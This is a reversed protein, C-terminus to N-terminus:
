GGEVLHPVLGRPPHRVDAGGRAARGVGAGARSAGAALSSAAAPARHLRTPRVRGGARRAPRPEMPQDGAAERLDCGGAGALCSPHARRAPLEALVRQGRRDEAGPRPPVEGPLPRVARGRHLVPRRPLVPRPHRGFRASRRRRRADARDRSDGSPAEARRLRGRRDARVAARRSADRDVYFRCVHTSNVAPSRVAVSQREARGPPGTCLSM